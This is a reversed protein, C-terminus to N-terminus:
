YGSILEIPKKASPKHKTNILKNRGMKSSEVSVKHSQDPSAQKMEMASAKSDLENLAIESLYQARLNEKEESVQDIEDELKDNSAKFQINIFSLLACILALLLALLIILKKNYSLEPM